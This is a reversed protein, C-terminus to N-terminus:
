MVEVIRAQVLSTLRDSWAAGEFYAVRGGSAMVLIRDNDLARMATPQSVTVQVPWRRFKSDSLDRLPCISRPPRILPGSAPM